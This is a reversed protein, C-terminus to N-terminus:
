QHPLKLKGQQWYWDALKCDLIRDKISGHAPWVTLGNISGLKHLIKSSKRLKDVVVFGRLLVLPSDPDPYFAGVISFQTNLKLLKSILEIEALDGYELSFSWFRSEEQVILLEKDEHKYKMHGDAILRSKALIKRWEKREGSVPLCFVDFLYNM